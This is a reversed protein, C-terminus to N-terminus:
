GGQERESELRADIQTALAATQDRWQWDNSNVKVKDCAHWLRRSAERLLERIEDDM